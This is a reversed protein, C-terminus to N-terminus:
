RCQRKQLDLCQMIERLVHHDTLFHQGFRKRAQHTM